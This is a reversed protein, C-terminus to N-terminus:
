RVACSQITFFDDYIQAELSRKILILASAM